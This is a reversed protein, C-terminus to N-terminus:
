VLDGAGRGSPNAELSPIEGTEALSKFRDLVTGLVPAPLLRAAVARGAAGGPPEVSVSLTVTTEDGGASEDFRVTVEGDLDSDDVTRWRIEEGPRDSAIRTQMSVTRDFPGQMSWRLRDEGADTVAVADGLVRSLREPDRWYEALEEAPRGVTVSRSVTGRRGVDPTERRYVDPEADRDSRGFLASGGVGRYLLAGGIAASAFGFRSRRRLGQVVLVGGIATSAVREWRRLDFERRAAGTDDGDVPDRSASEDPTSTM